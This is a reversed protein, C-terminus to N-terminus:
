KITKMSSQGFYNKIDFDTMPQLVGFVIEKYIKNTISSPALFKSGMIHRTKTVIEEAYHTSIYKSMLSNEFAKELSLIDNKKFKSIMLGADKCLQYAVKYKMVLEGISILFTESESLVTNNKIKTKSFKKLEHIVSLTAGLYPAPILAQFWTRQYILIKSSTEEANALDIANDCHVKLNKIKVSKTFSGEMTGGFAIDMFEINNSRSPIFFVTKTHDPLTATFVLYDAIESLSMFSAEGNIIYHENEKQALISKNDSINKFTRVSGTNAILLRQHKIKKLLTERKWYQTSKISFPYCSISALIYYHMSLAISVPISIQGIKHLIDFCEQHVIEISKENCPIFPLGSAKFLMYFEEYDKTETVERLKNCIKELQDEYKAHRKNTTKIKM